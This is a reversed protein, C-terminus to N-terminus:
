LLPGQRDIIEISTKNIVCQGFHGILGRSIKLYSMEYLPGCQKIMYTDQQVLDVRCIFDSSLWKMNQKALWFLQWVSEMGCSGVIGRTSAVATKYINGEDHIWLIWHKQQLWYGM